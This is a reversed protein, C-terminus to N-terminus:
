ANKQIKNSVFKIYAQKPMRTSLHTVAQNFVDDPSLNSTDIHLDYPMDVQSSRDWVERPMEFPVEKGNEDLTIRDDRTKERQNTVDRNSSLKITHMPYNMNKIDELMQRYKPSMGTSDMVIPSGNALHEKARDHMTQFVAGHKNVGPAGYLEARIADSSLHPIGGFHESLRKGLTTKGSGINGHLAIVFPNAM